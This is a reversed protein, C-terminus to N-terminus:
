ESITAKRVFLMIRAIHVALRLVMASHFLIVMIITEFSMCTTDGFCYYATCGREVWSMTVVGGARDETFSRKQFFFSSLSFCARRDRIVSISSCRASTM